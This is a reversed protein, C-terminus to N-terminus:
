FLKTDKQPAGDFLFYQLQSGPALPMKCCTILRPLNVPRCLQARHWAALTRPTLRDALIATRNGCSDVSPIFQPSNLRILANIEHHCKRGIPTEAIVADPVMDSRLFARLFVDVFESGNESIQPADQSRM